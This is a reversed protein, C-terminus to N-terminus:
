PVPANLDAAWTRIAERESEDCVYGYGAGADTWEDYYTLAYCDAMKESSGEFLGQDLLREYDSSGDRFRASDARQYVHALEHVLTTRLEYESDYESEALMHVTLSDGTVCGIADDDCVTAADWLITIFGHGANDVFGESLTGTDNIRRDEADAIHGELEERYRQADRALGEALYPSDASAAREELLEFWVPRTVLPAVPNGELQAALEYYREREAEYVAM